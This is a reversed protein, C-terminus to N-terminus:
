QSHLLTSALLYVNFLTSFFLDIWDMGAENQLQQQLQQQQQLEFQEQQQQQLTMLTQQNLAKINV